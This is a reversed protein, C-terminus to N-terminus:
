YSGGKGKSKQKGGQASGAQKYPRGKKQATYKVVRKRSGQDHALNWASTAAWRSALQVHVLGAIDEDSLGSEGAQNKWYGWAKGYPPGPDRDIGQFLVDPTLRLNTLIFSWSLRDERLKVIADVPREAARAFFLVVPLDREVHQVRPLLPELAARGFGSDAVALNLILVRSLVRSVAHQRNLLDSSRTDAM